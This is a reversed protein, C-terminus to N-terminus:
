GYLSNHPHYLLLPASFFAINQRMFLGYDAEIWHLMYSSLEGLKRSYPGEEALVRFTQPASIFEHNQRLIQLILSKLASPLTTYKAPIIFHSYEQVPYPFLNM